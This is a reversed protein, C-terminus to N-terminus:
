RYVIQRIDDSQFRVTQGDIREAGPQGAAADAADTFLFRKELTYPGPWSLPPLPSARHQEVAKQIGARIRKRAAPASLSIASNRSLGKKVCATVIDPVLDEAEKCAAEEGSLFILPLGLAGNYLGFSHLRGLSSATSPTRM